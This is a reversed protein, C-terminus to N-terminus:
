KNLHDRVQGKSHLQTYAVKKRWVKRSTEPVQIKVKSILAFFVDHTETKDTDKTM